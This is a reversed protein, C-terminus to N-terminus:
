RTPLAARSAMAASRSRQTSWSSWSSSAWQTLPLVARRDPGALEGGLRVRAQWRAKARRAARNAIARLHNEVVADLLKPQRRRIWRHACRLQGKGRLKTVDAGLPTLDLTCRYTLALSPLDVM